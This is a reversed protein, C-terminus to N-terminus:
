YRLLAGGDVLINWIILKYCKYTSSLETLNLNSKIFSIKVQYIKELEFFLNILSTFGTIGSDIRDTNPNGLNKVINNKVQLHFSFHRNFTSNRLFAM